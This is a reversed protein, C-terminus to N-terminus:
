AAHLAPLSATLQAALCAIQNRIDPVAVIEWFAGRTLPGVAYLRGDAQGDADLTRGDAAVDLGLGLEDTRVLGGDLLSRLLPDSTGALNAGPGTCNIIRAVALTQEDRRGRPRWRV